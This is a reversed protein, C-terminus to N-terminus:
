ASATAMSKLMSRFFIGINFDKSISFLLVHTHNTVIEKELGFFINTKTELGLNLRVSFKM